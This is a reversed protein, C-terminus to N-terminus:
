YYELNACLTQSAVVNVLRRGDRHDPKSTCEKLMASAVLSGMMKINITEIYAIDAIHITKNMSSHTCMDLFSRSMHALLM